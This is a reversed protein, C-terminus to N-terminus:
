VPRSDPATTAYTEYVGDLFTWMARASAEAAKLVESQSAPDTARTALIEREQGRHILDAEEHVTFYSVTSEDEIRYFSKLGERKTRAIEPVQSEFAYLAAVGRLYNDSTTLSKLADISEGTQPLLTASHMEDRSVGLGEAFRLWMEPHNEDGHEEDMLNELLLQRVEIDDCRSHVASLYVPFSRVHGYYQKSYQALSERSLKGKNWAQYYPHKLLSYQEIVHNLKEIFDKVSNTTQGTSITM